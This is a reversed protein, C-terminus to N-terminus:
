GIAILFVRFVHGHFPPVLNQILDETSVGSAIMAIPYRPSGAQWGRSGSSTRDTSFYGPRWSYTSVAPIPHDSGAIRASCDVATLATM